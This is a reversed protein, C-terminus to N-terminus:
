VSQFNKLVRFANTRQLEQDILIKRKFCCCNKGSVLSNGVNYLLPTPAPHAISLGSKTPGFPISYQMITQKSNAWGTDSQKRRGQIIPVILYQTYEILATTFNIDFMYRYTTGVLTCIMHLLLLENVFAPIWSYFFINHLAQHRGNLCILYCCFSQFM